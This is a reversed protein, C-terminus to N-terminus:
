KRVRTEIGPQMAACLEDIPSKGDAPPEFQMQVPVVHLPHVRTTHEGLNFADKETTVFATAGAQQAQKFLSEVDTASYHHHDRFERTAIVKV